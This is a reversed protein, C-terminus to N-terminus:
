YIFPSMCFLHLLCNKWYKWLIFQFYACYTRWKHSSLFLVLIQKYEQKSYLVFTMYESYFNLFFMNMKQWQCNGVFLLFLFLSIEQTSVSQLLIQNPNWDTKCLVTSTIRSCDGVILFETLINTVSKLLLHVSINDIYM